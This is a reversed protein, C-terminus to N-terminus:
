PELRQVANAASLAVWVYGDGETIGTPHDGVKIPDGDVRGTGEDIRTVTDDGGNSVFATGNGTAVDFPEKGVEIEESEGTEPNIRSVSNGRENAVWVAAEGASIGVPQDGVDIGDDSVEGSEVDIRMVTDDGSNTVWATGFGIAIGRPDTGVPIDPGLREGSGEDLRTVTGDEGNAIWVTGDRVVVFRPGDGVPIPPQPTLDDRSFRTVSDADRNTVWISEAGVSVWFPSAGTSQTTRGSGDPLLRTLSDDAQGVVYISGGEVAVGFPREGVPFTTGAPTDGGGGGEDDGGGSVLLLGVVVLAVLAAGIAIPLLPVRRKPPRVDPLAATPGTPRDGSPPAETPSAARTRASTESAPPQEPAETAAAPQQSAETGAPAAVSTVVPPPEPVPRTPAGPAAPAAGETSGAFATRAATILETCTQWRDEKPKALAKAIVEDLAALEPRHEALRPPESQIHAYIVALDSDRPFPKDAVLCEYLVCGLAYIDTRGDVDRGEIQEPAVYDITGLFQGTKTFGSKSDTRRTLGFDTLYARDSDLLINGPKVDRHVLGRAHAADLAYGVEGLISLTREPGLPGERELVTALDVGDVFQMAIYLSDDEVQGADYVTVINPHQLSAAMRSERLFRERFGESAAIEPALLKLAVNRQLHLHEALYVLGMGGRGIRREIRYGAIQSGIRPDEAL